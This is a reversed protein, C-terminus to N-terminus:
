LNCVVLIFQKHIHLVTHGIDFGMYLIFDQLITYCIQQSPVTKYSTRHLLTYYYFSGNNLIQPHPVTEILRGRLYSRLIVHQDVLLGISNPSASNCSM